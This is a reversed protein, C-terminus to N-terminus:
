HPLEIYDLARCDAAKWGISVDRGEAVTDTGAKNPVKVIFDDHGAVMLRARIHDGLYIQEAIRAKLVVDADQARPNIEVREPRVSLLTRDGKGGVNVALAKVVDGSDLKVTAVKLGRAELIAGLSAAAIGKGLSSVVGGTVFVFRAM